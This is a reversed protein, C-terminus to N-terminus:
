LLSFLSLLTYSFQRRVLKDKIAFMIAGAHEAADEVLSLCRLCGTMSQLFFLFLFM